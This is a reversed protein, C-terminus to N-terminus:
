VHTKSALPKNRPHELASALMKQLLDPHGRWVFRFIPILSNHFTILGNMHIRIEAENTHNGGDWTLRLDLYSARLKGERAVEKTFQLAATTFGFYLYYSVERTLHAGLQLAAVELMPLLTSERAIETLHQMYRTQLNLNNERRALWDQREREMARRKALTRNARKRSRLLIQLEQKQKADLEM